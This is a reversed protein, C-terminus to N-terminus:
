RFPSSIGFIALIMNELGQLGFQDDCLIDINRFIALTNTILDIVAAIIKLWDEQFQTAEDVFIVDYEIGQYKYQDKEADYYEFTITSGNPFIFKREQQNYKALGILM